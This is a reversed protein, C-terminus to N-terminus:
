GIVPGPPDRQVKVFDATAEAARNVTELDHGLGAEVAAIIAGEVLPANSICCVQARDPPLLELATEASMISSGLDALILVGAPSWGEQIAAVIAHVDSGLVYTDAPERCAERSPEPQLDASSETHTETHLEASSQKATQNTATHATRPEEASNAVQRLGGVALITLEPPAMQAALRRVGQAVEHSHSVVVISIVTPGQEM